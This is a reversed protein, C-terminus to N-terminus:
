KSVLDNCYWNGKIEFPHLMVDFVVNYRACRDHLKCESNGCRKIKKTM